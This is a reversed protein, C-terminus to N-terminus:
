DRAAQRRWCSPESLHRADLWAEMPAFFDNTYHLAGEHGPIIFSHPAGKVIKLTHDHGPSAAFARELAIRTSVLPVNVDKEALFWLVPGRFKKIAPVPTVAMNRADWNWWFSSWVKSIPGDGFAKKYWATHLYPAALADADAIPRGAMALKYLARSLDIAYDLDLGHLGGARLDQRREYLHTEFESLAPGVRLIMYATRPAEVAADPVVWGGQSSGFLGIRAADIGPQAQLFRVGAAADASMQSLDPERWNDPTTKPGYGRKDYSLVAMGHQLFFTQFPGGHRDAPGSGGVTVIAPHPGKCLPVMLRGHLVTGDASAFTVDRSKHAFVRTGSLPKRGKQNWVITDLSGDAGPRFEITVHTNPIVSRLVAANGVRKFKGGERATNAADLYIFSEEGGEIFYGGTIVDGNALRFSGDFAENDPTAAGAPVAFLLALVLVPLSRRVGARSSHVM